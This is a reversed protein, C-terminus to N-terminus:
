NKAIKSDGDVPLWESKPYAPLRVLRASATQTKVGVRTRVPAARWAVKEDVSIITPARRAGDTGEEDGDKARPVVPSKKKAAGTGTKSRSDADDGEANGANRPSQFGVNGDRNNLRGAGEETNTDSGTRPLPGSSGMESDTSGNEFTRPAGTKQKAKFNPDPDPAPASMSSGATSGITCNGTDCNGTTCNGTACPACGTACPAACGTACPSCNNYVVPGYCSGTSCGSPGCPYAPRCCRPGCGGCGFLASFFGCCADAETTMSACAFATTSIVSMAIWKAARLRM